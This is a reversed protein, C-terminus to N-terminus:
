GAASLRARIRNFPEEVFRTLLWAAAISLVSAWIGVEPLAFRQLTCAILFHCIYVPYSLDGIARDFSNNRTLAFVFPVCAAFALLTFVYSTDPPLPSIRYGLVLLLAFGLAIKGWLPRFNPKIWAAYARYGLMGLLFVALENPFFRYSWPDDGFGLRKLGLRLLISGLIVLGLSRTSLRILLPATAYFLIEVGISWSQPILSLSYAAIHTTGIQHSYSVSRLVDAQGTELSYKLFMLADQGVMFLNAFIVFLFNPLNLHSIAGLYWETTTSLIRGTTAAVLVTALLVAWYAPALRLFRNKYFTWVGHATGPYKGSLVLAIYFGSIVYFCQVALDARFLRYGFIPASHGIVVSLALLIRLWGM